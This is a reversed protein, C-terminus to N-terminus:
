GSAEGDENEDSSGSGSSSTEDDSDGAAAEGEEEDQSGIEGEEEEGEEEGEEKARKVPGDATRMRKHGHDAAAAAAAGGRAGGAGGGRRKQGAFVEREQRQVQEPAPDKDGLAFADGLEVGQPFVYITPFELVRTDRLVEGLCDDEKLPTVVTKQDDRQRPRALFYRYASRQDDDDTSPWTPASSATSHWSAWKPDQIPVTAPEWNSHHRNQMGPQARLFAAPNLTRVLRDWSTEAATDDEKRQKEDERRQTAHFALYLPTTEPTKSLVRATKPRKIRETEDDEEDGDEGSNEGDSAEDAGGGVVLGVVLWCVVRSKRNINTGNDKQRQMGKPVMDVHTNM